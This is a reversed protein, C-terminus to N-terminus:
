VPAEDLAVWSRCGGYRAEYPFDSWEPFSASNWSMWEQM